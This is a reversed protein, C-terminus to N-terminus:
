SLGIRCDSLTRVCLTCFRMASISATPSLSGLNGAIYAAKRACEAASTDPPDPDLADAAAAGEREVGDEYGVELVDDADAGLDAGAVLDADDGLDADNGV